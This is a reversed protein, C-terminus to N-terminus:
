EIKARQLNKHHETQYILILDIVVKKESRSNNRSLKRNVNFVVKGM